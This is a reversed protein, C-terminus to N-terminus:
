HHEITMVPANKAEAAVRVEFSPMLSFLIHANHLFVLPSKDSNGVAMRELGGDGQAIVNPFTGDNSKSLKKDQKKPFM